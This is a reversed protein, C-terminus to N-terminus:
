WKWNTEKKNLNSSFLKSEGGINWYMIINIMLFMMNFTVFLIEWWMPSMQPM